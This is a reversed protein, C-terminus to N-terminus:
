FRQLYESARVLRLNMRDISTTTTLSSQRVIDTTASHDTHVITPMEASEVMHCIKRILWVLGAVELETPWYQTETGSIAKSMFLISEMSKQGNGNGEKIHYVHAGFGFEKSADIDAYLQRKPDYHILITPKSFLGQLHHFADLKSSTPLDIM